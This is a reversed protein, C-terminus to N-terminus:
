GPGGLLADAGCRRDYLARARTLATAGFLHVQWTHTCGNAVETRRCIEDPPAGRGTADHNEACTFAAHQLDGVARPAPTGQAYRQAVARSFLDLTQAQTQTRWSSGLDLEGVLPAPAAPATRSTPMTECAALAALAILPAACKM